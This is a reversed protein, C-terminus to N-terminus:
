QGVRVTFMRVALKRARPTGRGGAPGHRDLLAVYDDMFEALAEPTLWVTARSIGALPEGDHAQRALLRFLELDGSLQEARRRDVTAQAALPLEAYRPQRLDVDVAQWWREKGHHPHGHDEQVLGADALVRLHYSATGTNLGLAQALTTSTVPGHEDLHDRIRKRLPHGLARWVKPSGEITRSQARPLSGAYGLFHAYNNRCLTGELTVHM